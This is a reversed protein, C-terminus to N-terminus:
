AGVYEIHQKLLEIATINAELTNGNTYKLSEIKVDELEKYNGITNSEIIKYIMKKFDKSSQKTALQKSHILIYNEGVNDIILIEKNSCTKVLENELQEREISTQERKISNEKEQQDKRIQKAMREISELKLDYFAMDMFKNIYFTDNIHQELVTMIDEAYQLLRDTQIRLNNGTSYIIEKTTTDYIIVHMVENIEKGEYNIRTRTGAIMRKGNVEIIGIYTLDKQLNNSSLIKNM